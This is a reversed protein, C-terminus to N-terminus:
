LAQKRRRKASVSHSHRIDRRDPSQTKALYSAIPTLHGQYNLTQVAKIHLHCDRGSAAYPCLPARSTIRGFPDDPSSHAEPLAVKGM